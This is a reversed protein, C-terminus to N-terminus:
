YRAYKNDLRHSDDTPGPHVRSSYEFVREFLPDGHGGVGVVLDDVARPREEAVQVLLVPDLLGAVQVRLRRRELEPQASVGLQLAGPPGAPRPRSPRRCCAPNPSGSTSAM